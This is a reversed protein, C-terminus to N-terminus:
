HLKFNFPLAMWAKVPINRQKGPIWKTRRAAALASQDLTPNVSKVVQADLVTGDPGVLVKVIVTGQLQAMRAMEPYEPQVRQLLKPNEASVVFQEGNDLSIAGMGDNLAATLDILTDAIEVDDTVADDPAAEIVRPPTPAEVPPPLEFDQPTDNLEVLEMEQQRMKYPKFKIEPSVFFAILVILIAGLLSWRLTKGYQAKFEANASMRYAPTASSTSM